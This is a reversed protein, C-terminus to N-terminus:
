MGTSGFGGERRPLAPAEDRPGDVVRHFVIQAWRSGDEVHVENGIAAAVFGVEGDYDADIAGCQVILGRTLASSRPRVEAWMDPPMVLRFGCPVIMGKDASVRRNGRARMDYGVAHRTHRTPITGGPALVFQPADNESM